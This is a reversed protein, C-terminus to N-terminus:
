GLANDAVTMRGQTAVCHARFPRFCEVASLLTINKDGYVKKEGFTNYKYFNTKGVIM